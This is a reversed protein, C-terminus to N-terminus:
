PEAEPLNWEIEYDEGLEQRLQRYAFQAKQRFIRTDEATWWPSPAPARDWDLQTQYYAQLYALYRKLNGSIPLEQEDVAYGYRERAAENASWLCTGGWEFWYQLKYAAM